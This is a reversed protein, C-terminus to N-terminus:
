VVCVCGVCVCVVGEYVCWGGRGVCLGVECVVEVREDVWGGSRYM